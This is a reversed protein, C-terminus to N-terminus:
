VTKDQHDLLDRHAQFVLLVLMDLLDLSELFDVPVLIEMQEQNDLHDLNASKERFATTERQVWPDQFVSRDPLAL